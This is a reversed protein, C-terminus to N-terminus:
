YLLAAKYRSQDAGDWCDALEQGTTDKAAGFKGYPSNIGDNKIDNYLSLKKDNVVYKSAPNIIVSSNAIGPIPTGSFDSPYIINDSALLFIKDYTFSLNTTAGGVEWYQYRCGANPNLLYSAFKIEKDAQLYGDHLTFKTDKDFLYIRIMRHFNEPQGTTNFEPAQTVAWGASDGNDLKQKFDTFFQDLSARANGYNSQYNWSNKYDYEGSLANWQNAMDVVSCDMPDGVGGLKLSDTVRVGYDSAANATSHFVLVSSVTSVLLLVVLSLRKIM